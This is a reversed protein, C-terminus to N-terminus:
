AAVEDVEVVPESEAHLRLQRRNGWLWGVLWGGGVPIELAFTFGRYLLVGAAMAAPAGGLAVLAAAAGAEAFGAGGPTLVVMSMIRDVTFAALVVTVALPAGVAHLCAWLLVAQLVAYGLTGLTLQAWRRGIVKAVQDRFDLLNQVVVPASTPRHVWRGVRVAVPAAFAAVRQAVTRRALFGVLVAVVVALAVAAGLATWRMTENITGGTAFLAGLALAPLALKLLIGWLNTVLTFASFEQAGYGWARLMVFNLSMGAAGGFPLVNSVSSGTLNLTLARRRSLGTLAGTLVFSYVFLGLAWILVLFVADPATVLKLATVVDHLTTGVLRPLVVALLTLALALSVLVRLLQRTRSRSSRPARGNAVGEVGPDVDPAHFVAPTGNV